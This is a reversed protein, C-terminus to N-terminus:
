ISVRRCPEKLRDGLHYTFQYYKVFDPITEFFPGIKNAYFQENANIKIQYHAIKFGCRVLYIISM